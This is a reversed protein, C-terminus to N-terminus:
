LVLCFIQIAFIAVFSGYKPM